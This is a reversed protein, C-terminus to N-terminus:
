AVTCRQGNSVTALPFSLRNQEKDESSKTPRVYVPLHPAPVIGEMVMVRLKVVRVIEGETGKMVNTGRIFM